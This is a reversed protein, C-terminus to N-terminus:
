FCVLPHHLPLPTGIKTIPLNTGDTTSIRPLSRPYTHYRISADHTMHHPAGSDIIWPTISKCTPSITTVPMCPHPPDLHPPLSPVLPFCKKSSNSLLLYSFILHSM